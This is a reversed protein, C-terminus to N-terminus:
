VDDIWEPQGRLDARQEAEARLQRERMETRWAPPNERYKVLDRAIMRLTVNALHEFRDLDDRAAQTEVLCQLTAPRAWCEGNAPNTFPWCLKKCM